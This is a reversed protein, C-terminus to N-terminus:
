AHTGTGFALGPDLRVVAADAAQAAEPLEQNWPVIFTRRGFQMPAFQDMWAREWDQDEVTGFEAGSLEIHPDFAELALLVLDPVTDEPFLATVVMERWLPTQGVGPEFIAQEDREEAHLDMMTVSLAGVDELAMELRPQDAERCPLSLELYPMGAVKGCARGSAPHRASPAMGAFPEM